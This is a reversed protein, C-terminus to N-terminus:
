KENINNKINQFYISASLRIKKTILDKESEFKVSIVKGLKFEQELMYVLKLLKIFSGEVVVMNTEINYDRNKYIHTQPLEKLILKNDNCYNSVKELLLEQFDLDSTINTGITKNISNLKNELQTIKNPADSASILQEEFDNCQSKLGFTKRISM